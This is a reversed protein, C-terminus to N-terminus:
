KAPRTKHTFEFWVRGGRREVSLFRRRTTTSTKPDFNVTFLSLSEKGAVSVDVEKASSASHYTLGMGLDTVTGRSIAKGEWFAVVGYRAGKAYPVERRDGPALSWSQPPADQSAADELLTVEVRDVEARGFRALTTVLYVLPVLILITWLLARM